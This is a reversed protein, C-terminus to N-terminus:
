DGCQRRNPLTSMLPSDRPPAPLLGSKGGPQLSDGAYVKLGDDLVENLSQADFSTYFRDLLAKRKEKLKPAPSTM